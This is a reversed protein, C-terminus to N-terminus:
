RAGLAAWLDGFSANTGHIALFRHVEADVGTKHSFYATFAGIPDDDVSLVFKAFREDAALDPEADHDPGALYDNLVLEHINVPPQALTSHTM